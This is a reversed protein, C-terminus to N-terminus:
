PAAYNLFNGTLMLLSMVTWSEEYYAGGALLKGTVVGSALELYADDLFSQYAPASMAGVAAPGVFAAALQGPHSPMPMGDLAYGDAINAAGVGAFFASTKQVYAAARPEGFWCWDLGVRFPTRCADYQYNGPSGPRCTSQSSDDCWAPVLGNSENGNGTLSDAITAYTQEVVASWDDSPNTDVSKFVRYYAPALYSVNLNTNTAWNGDGARLWKSEFVETSWIRGIMDIATQEYSRSLTGQGGWQKGAMVLAFAMDEDADTAGGRCDPGSGEPAWNMLGNGDLNAQEFLWLGDFLSQDNMYAAFLMGYAIGESVTSGLPRCADVGDSTTRQVRLHGGAGNSTVLDSKWQAYAAQVDSNKYGSPYACGASQRNQPFPFNSGATPPTPGRVSASSADPQSAADIGANGSPMSADTQAQSTQGADPIAISITDAGAEEQALLGPATRSAETACGAGGWEVVALIGVAAHLSRSAHRRM